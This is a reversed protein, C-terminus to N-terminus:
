CTTILSQFLLHLSAVSIPLINNGCMVRWCGRPWGQAITVSLKFGMLMCLTDAAAHALDFRHIKEIQERPRRKQLHGIRIQGLMPFPQIWRLHRQRHEHHLRQVFVARALFRHCAPGRLTCRFTQTHLTDISSSVALRALAQGNLHHGPGAFTQKWAQRAFSQVIDTDTPM